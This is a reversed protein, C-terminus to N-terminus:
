SIFICKEIDNLFFSLFLFMKGFFTKTRKSADWQIGGFVSFSKKPWINWLKKDMNMLLANEIM